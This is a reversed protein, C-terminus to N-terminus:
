KPICRKAYNGGPYDLPSIWHDIAAAPIAAVYVYPRVTQRVLVYLTDSAQTILEVCGINMASIISPNLDGTKISAIIPAKPTGTDTNILRGFVGAATQQAWTNLVPFLVLVLFFLVLRQYKFAWAPQQVKRFDSLAALAVIVAFGILIEKRHDLFVSYSGALIQNDVISFTSTPIHLYYYYYHRYEFGTFFALIALVFVLDRVSALLSPPSPSANTM